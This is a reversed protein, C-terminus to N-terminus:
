IEICSGLAVSLSGVTPAADHPVARVPAGPSGTLPTAELKQRCGCDCWVSSRGALRVATEPGSERRTLAGSLHPRSSAGPISVGSVSWTPCATLSVLSRGLRLERRNGTM